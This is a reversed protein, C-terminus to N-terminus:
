WWKNHGDPDERRTDLEEFREMVSDLVAKQLAEINMDHDEVSLGPFKAGGEARAELSDKAMRVQDQAEKQRSNEALHILGMLKDALKMIKTAGMGDQGQSLQTFSTGGKLSRSQLNSQTPAASLVRQRNRLLDAEAGDLASIREMLRVAEAPLEQRVERIETRRDIIVKVIEDPREARALAGMLSSTEREPRAKQEDGRGRAATGKGARRAWAPGDALRQDEPVLDADSLVPTLVGLEAAAGRRQWTRRRTLPGAEGSSVSPRRVLAELTRDFGAGRGPRGFLPAGVTDDADSQTGLPVFSDDALRQTRAAPRGPTRERATAPEARREARVTPRALTRGSEADVIVAGVVTGDPATQLRAEFRPVSAETRRTGAGERREAAELARRVVPLTLLPDNRRSQARRTTAQRVARQLRSRTDGPRAAVRRAGGAVSPPDVAGGALRRAGGAVSSTDVAEGAPTVLVGEVLGAGTLTRTAARATRDDVAPRGILSGEARRELSRGVARETAGPRNVGPRRLDRSQVPRGLPLGAARAAVSELGTEGAPADAFVLESSGLAGTIQRMAMAHDALVPSGAVQDRGLETRRLARGLTSEVEPTEAGGEVVADIMAPDLRGVLGSVRLAPDHVSALAGGVRIADTAGTHTRYAVSRPLGHDGTRQAVVGDVEQSRTRRRGAGPEAVSPTVFTRAGDVFGAPTRVGRTRVTPRYPTRHGASVPTEGRQSRHTPSAETFGRVSGSDATVDAPSAALARQVVRGQIEPTVSPTIRRRTSAAVARGRRAARSALGTSQALDADGGEGLARAVTLETPAALTRARSPSTESTVAPTAALRAAIERVRGRPAGVEREGLGGSMQQLRGGPRSPQAESRVKRERASGQTERASPQTEHASPHGERLSRQVGHADQQTGRPSRQVGDVPEFDDAGQPVRREAEGLVAATIRTRGGVTQLREVSSVDVTRALRAEANTLRGAPTFREPLEQVGSADVPLALRRALHQDITRDERRFPAVVRPSLLEGSEGQRARPVSRSAARRSSALADVADDAAPEVPALFSGVPADRMRSRRSPAASRELREEARPARGDVVPAHAEAADRLQRRSAVAGAVRGSEAARDSSARNFPGVLREVAERAVVPSVIDVHTTAAPALLRGRAGSREQAIARSAARVVPRAVNRRSGQAVVREQAGRRGVTGAGSVSAGGTPRRNPSPESSGEAEDGVAVPEAARFEDQGLVARSRASESAVGPVREGVRLSGSPGDAARASYSSVVGLSAGTDDVGVPTSARAEVHAISRPTEALRAGLSGMAFGGTPVAETRAAARPGVSTQPLLVRDAAGLSSVPAAVDAPVTIGGRSASAARVVSEAGAPQYSPHVLDHAIRRTTRTTRAPAPLLSSAEGPAPVRARDMARAVAPLVRPKPREARPARGDSPRTVTGEARGAPTSRVTTAAKPAPRGAGVHASRPQKVTQSPAVEPAAPGLPLSVDLVEVPLVAPRTGGAVRREAAPSGLMDERLAPAAAHSLGPTTRGDPTLLGVELRRALRQAPMATDVVGRAVNLGRTTDFLPTDTAEQAVRAIRETPRLATRVSRTRAAFSEGSAAPPGARGVGSQQRAESAVRAVPQSRHAHSREPVRPTSREVRAGPSEQREVDAPRELEMLVASSELQRRLGRPDRADQRRQAVALSGSGNRSEGGAVRDLDTGRAAVASIGRLSRALARVKEASDASSAQQLQPLSRRISAAVDDRSASALDRLQALMRSASAIDGHLAREAATLRRPSSPERRDLTDDNEGDLQSSWDVLTPELSSFDGLQLARVSDTGVRREFREHARISARARGIRALLQRRYLAMGRLEAYYDESSLYSLSARDSRGSVRPEAVYPDQLGLRDFLRRGAGFRTVEASRGLLREALPSLSDQSHAMPRGRSLPISSGSVASDASLTGSRVRQPSPKAGVAPAGADSAPADVSGSLSAGSEFVVRHDLLSAVDRGRDHEIPSRSPVRAAPGSPGSAGAITPPSFSAGARRLPEGPASRDTSPVVRRDIPRAARRSSWGRGASTRTPRAESFVGTGGRGVQQLDGDPLSGELAAVQLELDRVVSRAQDVRAGAVRHQRRAQASRRGLAPGDDALGGEETLPLGLTMALDPIRWTRGAVHSSRGTRHGALVPGGLASWGSSARAGLREAMPSLRQQQMAELEAILATAQRVEAELRRRQRLVASPMAEVRERRPVEEEESGDQGILHVLDVEEPAAALGFRELRELREYTQMTSRIRGIRVMLHRRLLAMGKLDDLWGQISLFSFRPPTRGRSGSAPAYPDDIGLRRFLREGFGVRTRESNRALLRVALESLDNATQAM